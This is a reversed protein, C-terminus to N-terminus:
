LTGVEDLVERVIDAVAFDWPVEPQRKLAAVVKQHMKPPLAISAADEEAKARIAELVKNTLARILVHRAHQELVDNNPVVEGIGHEALKREVFRVFVDAPM